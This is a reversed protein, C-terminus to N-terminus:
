SIVKNIYPSVKAVLDRGIRDVVIFGRLELRMLTERLETRSVDIGHEKKLIELLEKESLGKPTKLLEELVLRFLPYNRWLETIRPM